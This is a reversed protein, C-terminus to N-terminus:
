AGLLTILPAMVAGAIPDMVDATDQAAQEPQAICYILWALFLVAWADGALTHLLDRLPGLDRCTPVTCDTTVRLVPPIFRLSVGLAAALDLPVSTPVAQLLRLLEPFDSGITKELSQLETEIGAWVTAATDKAETDVETVAGAIATQVAKLDGAIADLEAQGFLAAAKAEAANFLNRADARAQQILDYLRTAVVDLANLMFKRLADIANQRAAIEADVWRRAENRVSTAFQLATVLARSAQQTAFRRTNSIERPLVVDAQHELAGGMANMTDRIVGITNQAFVAAAHFVKGAAWLTGHWTALTATRLGAAAADFGAALPPGVFPIRRFIGGMFTAILWLGALVLVAFMAIVVLGLEAGDDYGVFATVHRTIM